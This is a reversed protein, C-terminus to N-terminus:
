MASLILTIFLFLVAALLWKMAQRLKRYRYDHLMGSRWLETLAHELFQQRSTAFLGAKFEEYNGHEEIGTYSYLFPAPAGTGPFQTKWRRVTVLVLSANVVSVGVCALTVVSAALVGYGAHPSRLGLALAVGAVILADTSLLTGARSALAARLGDGRLIHWHVLEIRQEVRTRTRDSTHVLLYQWGLDSALRTCSSGPM